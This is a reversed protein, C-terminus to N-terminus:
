DMKVYAAQFFSMLGEKLSPYFYQVGKLFAPLAKWVTFIDKLCPGDEHMRGGYFMARYIVKDHVNGPNTAVMLQFGWASSELNVYWSFELGGAIGFDIFGRERVDSEAVGSIVIGVTRKIESRMRDINDSGELLIRFGKEEENMKTSVM